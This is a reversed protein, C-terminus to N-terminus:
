GDALVPGAKRLYNVGSGVTAILTALMGYWALDRLLGVDNGDRVLILLMLTATVTQVGMKIKGFWDAPFAIGKTEALGRLATVLFERAILVVVFWHPLVGRLEEFRLLAIFTGCVLVKDVFPDLVRGLATVQGLRRALWGDVFDTLAAVLFLVLAWVTSSRAPIETDISVPEWQVRTTLELAVICGATIGLRALTITNPLNM